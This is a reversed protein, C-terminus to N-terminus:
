QPLLRAALALMWTCTQWAAPIVTYYPHLNTAENEALDSREWRDSFSIINAPTTHTHAPSLSQDLFLTHIPTNSPLPSTSISKRHFGCGGGGGSGECGHGQVGPHWLTGPDTRQWINEQIMKYPQPNSVM